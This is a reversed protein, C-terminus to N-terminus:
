GGQGAGAESPGTPGASPGEYGVFPFLFQKVFGRPMPQKIGYGEPWRGDAPLYYTGFLRDLMPFHVAFNVDIAEKEIGHHWHHFRPTVLLRDLFWFNLRLNSHVLASLFYVFILYAYLAPEAFGLVYMPIVTLGRLCVIELVHMRSSALWDMAQASHHVAHFNWLWPIRHFTRHVWYQVLDTLFVIEVFQLLVPQSAVAERFGGWDTHHLITLAPALSLYTLVQVFLASIFFYLLDERWEHRFIPQERRGLIREIPIFVIGMLILNLLFWDLGFYVDSHIQLRDQANSGGLATAVLVLSLATFGLVKNTRLVISVTGLLFATILVLHLALRILGVNYYARADAVTLVDPYRLCLVAGLGIVALVLALFGSIWGTGFRRELAQAELDQRLLTMVSGKM